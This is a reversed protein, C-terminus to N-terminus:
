FQESTKPSLARSHAFVAASLATFKYIEYVINESDM